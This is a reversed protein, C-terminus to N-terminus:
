FRRGRRRGEELSGNLLTVSIPVFSYKYRNYKCKYLEYRRGSPMLRYGRHLIHSPDSVIKKVQSITSQEFMAQPTIPPASMGMIKGAMKVLRFIESKYKVSLNGFWSTIGYRVISEISARYFILMINRCVGFLRLRRLFHLRQHIKSCLSTVHTHWSMECDIQVGLYKYSNVQKINHGHITIESHDGVSRPDVVIEQTKKVNIQLHHEDCWEVFRDVGTTHSSINDKSTLLSLIVTDDSFKIVYQNVQSSVCENTYLTFLLSSSVTGQPAGTSSVAKESLVSNFRVQQPRNSLFSYYWRILSPNVRLRALGSRDWKGQCLESYLVAKPLRTVEMRSVHNQFGTTLKAVLEGLVM